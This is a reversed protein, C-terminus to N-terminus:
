MGKAGEFSGSPLRDMGGELRGRPRTFSFGAGGRIYLIIGATEYPPAGHPLRLGRCGLTERVRGSIEHPKRKCLTARDQQKKRVQSARKPRTGWERM